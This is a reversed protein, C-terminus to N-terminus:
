MAAVPVFFSFLRTREEEEETGAGGRLGRTAPALVRALVLVLSLAGGGREACGKATRAAAAPEEERETTAATTASTTM